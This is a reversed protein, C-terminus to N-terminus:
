CRMRCYSHNVDLLRGDKDVMWYGDMAMQLISRHTAESKRLAEELEKRETVDHIISHIADGAGFQIRSSSVEVERVSGDALRHQFRFRSGHEPSVAAMASLAESATLINIDTISMSLIQERPYGYFTLAADNAALITGSSPDILLMVSSNGLFQNRYSQESRRLAEEGRRRETIDTVSAYYYEPRGEADMSLDVILEIPVRSGDKRLYEKEYRVSQLTRDLEKLKEREIEHWEPPTLSTSWDTSELEAATYGTLRAFAGNVLGIRGNQYGIAFPQSSRELLSALFSNKKEGAAHVEEARRCETIDRVVSVSGVIQGATNRIPSASVKRWRLEGTAPTRIIEEQDPVTEGLLARLSPAEDIPRPSGDPRFVELSAALERVDTGCATDLAFERCSMPNVLTFKGSADAFWIEDTISNVVLTLRDKENAIAEHLHREKEEPTQSSQNAQNRAADGDPALDYLEFYRGRLAARKAQARRLGESQREVELDSLELEYLVRRQEESPLEDWQKARDKKIM